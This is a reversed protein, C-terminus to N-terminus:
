RGFMRGFFGKAAATAQEKVADMAMEAGTECLKGFMASLVEETLGTEKAAAAVAADKDGHFNAALARAAKLSLERDLGVQAGVAAIAEDSMKTVISTFNISM